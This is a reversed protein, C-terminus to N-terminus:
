FTSDSTTGTEFNQDEDQLSVMRSVFANYYEYLLNLSPILSDAKYHRTFYRSKQIQMDVVKLRSRIQPVNLNKPLPNKRMDKVRASLALLDVEIGEVNLENLRTMSEYISIFSEWEDLENAKLFEEPYAILNFDTKKISDISKEVLTPTVTGTQQQMNTCSIYFVFFLMLFVTRNLITTM